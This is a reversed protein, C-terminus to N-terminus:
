KNKKKLCFVAYSIIQHSSNLRTSKRDLTMAKYSGLAVVVAEILNPMKTLVGLVDGGKEIVDVPVGGLNSLSDIMKSFDIEGLKKVFDKLKDQNKGVAEGLSIRINDMATSWLGSLTLAGKEMGKYFKGGESTASKMAGSVMQFSIQGKSMMTTLEGMSKGTMSSLQTLPNFGANMFQHYDQGQLHGLSAVHGLM